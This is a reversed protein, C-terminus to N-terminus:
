RTLRWGTDSRRAQLSMPCSREVWRREAARASKSIRRTPYSGTTDSPTSGKQCKGRRGGGRAHKAPKVAAFAAKVQAATVGLKAALAEDLRAKTERASTAAAATKAEAQAAM